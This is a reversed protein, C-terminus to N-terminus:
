LKLGEHKSYDNNDWGRHFDFDHTEHEGDFREVVQWLGDEVCDKLTIRSGLRLNPKNDVWTTMRAGDVERYLTVQVIKPM